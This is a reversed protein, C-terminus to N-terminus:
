KNLEQSFDRQSKLLNISHLLFNQSEYLTNFYLISGKTSSESNSKLNKIQEKRLKRILKLLAEQKEYIEHLAEYQNSEIIHIMSGFMETLQESIKELNSLQNSSLSKHNNNIHEYAPKSIFSLSHAMERLYDLIQVYYPGSEIANEELQKLVLFIRSKLRKATVNLEIVKADAEALLKRDEHKLGSVINEYVQIFDTLNETINNTCSSVIDEDRVIATAPLFGNQSENEIRKKHIIHTRYVIFIALLVMAAVGYIGGYYLILAILFSISFAIFATLFWGGIVTIVGSIRYVASDRGWAGDSLSTAMAVMFTVYTTSLPLKLSTGLAILASSVTLNVSARVLDFSVKETGEITRGTFKSTDFRNNIHEQIRIPVIKSMSNSLSITGRVISRALRSSGFREEQEDQNTLDLETKTVTRAKKSLWLTAVMIMGAMILFTVPTPVKGTLGTMLFNSPDSFGSSAFDQYAAYGAMPVGIFNVLDNGAFAMALAFTGILVIIKLPNIKTVWTLIQLIITWGIFSLFMLFMTNEKIYDKLIMGNELVYNAFVSDKIGKILIFYTILSVAIGGWISGIYKARKVFDFTFAYRVLYMIIVGVTFSIGVSILIGSIIALANASNIYQAISGAEPNNLVKMMSIAVASGLLEFVLSVTTSTPMGFTNFLDLLIVDTLMVALFIILIENFYFFQPNFIGTRAVEMMGTSFTAGFFVGVSAIVMILWFPASKSGIASNLFNVADNSVGVILDSIALLFLVGVIILIYTEM